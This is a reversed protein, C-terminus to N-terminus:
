RYRVVFRLCFDGVFGSRDGEVTVSGGILTNPMIILLLIKTNNVNNNPSNIPLNTQSTANTLYLSRSFLAMLLFALRGNATINFREGWLDRSM